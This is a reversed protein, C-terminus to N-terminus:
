TGQIAMAELVRSRLAASDLAEFHDGRIQVPRLPHQWLADDEVLRQVLARLVFSTDVVTNEAWAPLLLITSTQMVHNRIGEYCSGLVKAVVALTGVTQEQNKPAGAALIRERYARYPAGFFWSQTERTTAAHVVRLDSRIRGN